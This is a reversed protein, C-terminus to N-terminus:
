SHDNSEGKGLISDEVTVAASLLEESNKGAYVIFEGAEVTYQLNRDYFGWRSVPLEASVTVRKEAAVFVKQFGKLELMPRTISAVPDKVYFQVIEEGDYESHNEVEVSVMLTDSIKLTRESVRLNSYRFDSYSLGFGFPFLPKIPADCYKSTWWYEEVPPKGTNKMCYYVPAQGIAAPFTSVLKASPNYEGFLIDRFANGAENGLAGSFLVADSLACVETLVLPRGGVIVSVIRKGTQKIRRLLELQVAPIVNHTRSKGEGNMSRPEGIFVLVCEANEVLSCATEYGGDLENEMDCGPAYLCNNGFAALPTVSDESNGIASWCGLTEEANDAFPGTLMVKEDRKLPLVGENKLLVVSRKAAELALSRHAASLGDSESKAEDRYPNEFLGLEFKLRLVRAVAADLASVSIEGDETLRALHDHYVKEEWGMEVDLGANFAIRATDRPNDAIGHKQLQECSGFDSITIGEFGLKERLLETLIYRSGSCPEGNLDHFATMVSKAGASFATSFPPLYTDFLTQESMDASNYDRGGICAGYGVFHKVCAAAHKGDSMVDGQIGETRAKAFECGLYVDEGAGEVGRGWRPDRSIDVMPAYIWNIGCAAAEEAGAAATRKALDPEWSFSETWPAPFITKYGHIVDYGFLLPIGLRTEEVAIRQLENRQHTTFNGLFSGIKGARLMDMGVSYDERYISNGCQTLQGAKEEPTMRSLLEAIKQETSHDM